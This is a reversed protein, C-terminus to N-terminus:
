AVEIIDANGVKTLWITCDGPNVQMTSGTNGHRWQLAIHYQSPTDVVEVLGARSASDAGSTSAAQNSSLDLVITSGEPDDRFVVMSVTRLSGSTVAGTETMLISYGVHYIGPSPFSQQSEGESPGFGNITYNAFVLSGDGPGMNINAVGTTDIAFAAATVRWVATPPNISPLLSNRFALTEAEIREALEQMYLAYGAFDTGDPCPLGLTGVDHM